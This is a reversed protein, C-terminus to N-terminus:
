DHVRTYSSLNANGPDFCSHRTLLYSPINRWSVRESVVNLGPRTSSAYKEPKLIEVKIGRMELEVGLRYEVFAEYHNAFGRYKNSFSPPLTKSSAFDSDASWSDTPEFERTTPFATAFPFTYRQGPVAKFSDECITNTRSFLPVRGRYLHRQGNAGSSKWVKTKARGHLVIALKLPGFLDKVEAKSKPNFTLVVTGVILDEGGYHM